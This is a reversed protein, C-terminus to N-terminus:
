KSAVAFLFNGVRSLVNEAIADPVRKLLRQKMHGVLGEGPLPLLESKQGLVDVETKSFGCKMLMSALGRKTYFRAIYGDTYFSLVEALSMGQFFKGTLGGRGISYLASLSILHYVMLRFEGGPKLVRYVEKVIEETRSSHHIVGWSWVFDFNEDPFELKEADMVRLDATLNKFALRKRTLEVARKTLDIATLQCGAQALLRAHSGLGCGIELVRKGRLLDFPILRAFPREGEFFSSAFFFRRDIEEFFERTGEPFRIPEKWAYAMPKSEWWAKNNHQTDLRNQPLAERM